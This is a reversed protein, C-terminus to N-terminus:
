TCKSYQCSNVKGSLRVCCVLKHHPSVRTLCCTESFLMCPASVDHLFCCVMEQGSVRVINQGLLHLIPTYFPSSDLLYLLQYGFRLGEQTAHIWPFLCMFLRLIQAQTRRWLSRREPQQLCHQISSLCVVSSATYERITFTVFCIHMFISLSRKFSLIKVSVQDADPEVDSSRQMIHLALPSRSQRRRRNYISELKNQM